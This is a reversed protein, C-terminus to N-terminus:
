LDMLYNCEKLYFAFDKHPNAVALPRVKIPSSLFKLYFILLNRTVLFQAL